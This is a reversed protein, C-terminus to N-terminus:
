FPNTFGGTALVTILLGIVFVLCVAASIVLAKSVTNLGKFKEIM